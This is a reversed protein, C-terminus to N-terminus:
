LFFSEFIYVLYRLICGATPSASCRLQVAGIDSCGLNVGNVVNFICARALSITAIKFPPAPCSTSNFAHSL